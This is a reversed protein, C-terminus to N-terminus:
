RKEDSKKGFMWEIVMTKWKKCESKELTKKSIDTNQNQSHEKNRERETPPRTPPHKENKRNHLLKKKQAHKRKHTKWTKKTNRKKKQQTHIKRTTTTTTRWFQNLFLYNRIELTLNWTESPSPPLFPPLLLLACCHKFNWTELKLSLSSSCLPSVCVSCLFVSYFWLLFVVFGFDCMTPCCCFCVLNVVLCM